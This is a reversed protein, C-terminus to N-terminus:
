TQFGSCTLLLLMAAMAALGFSRTSPRPVPWWRREDLSTKAISRTMLPLCSSETPALAKGVPPFQGDHGWFVSAHAQPTGGSRGFLPRPPVVPCRQDGKDAIDFAFFREAFSQGIRGAFGQVDPAATDAQRDRRHLFDGRWPHQDDIQGTLILRQARQAFQGIDHLRVDAHQDHPVDFVGVEVALDGAPHPRGFIQGFRDGAILHQTVEAGINLAATEGGGGHQAPPRDGDGTRPAPNPRRGDRDVQRPLKADRHPTVSNQQIGIGVHTGRGEQQVHLGPRSQAHGQFRRITDVTQQSLAGRLRRGVAQM